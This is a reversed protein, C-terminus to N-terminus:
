YFHPIYKTFKTTYITCSALSNAIHLFYSLSTCHFAISNLIKCRLLRTFLRHVTLSALSNLLTCFLYISNAIHLLRTFKTNCLALPSHIQGHVACSVISNPSTCHLLRTFKPVNGAVATHRSTFCQVTINHHPLCWAKMLIFNTCSAINNKNTPWVPVLSTNWIHRKLVWKRM